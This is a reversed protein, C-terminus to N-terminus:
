EESMEVIELKIDNHVLILSTTEQYGLDTEYTIKLDVKIADSDTTNLYDHSIHELNIVEVNTVTPLKNENKVGSSENVVENYIGNKALKIFDGQFDTYVFQVGGIDNKSTKNDLNLFDALFLQSVLSAYKDEDVEDSELTTKLKKFLEKYYKTENDDMKYGYKKIEDEVKVVKKTPKGNDLFLSTVVFIIAIIAILVLLFKFIKKKSLKRKKVLKGRKQKNYKGVLNEKEKAKAILDYVIINNSIDIMKGAYESNKMVYDDSVPIDTNLLKSEEKQSNYYMTDTLWNGDPFVVINSEVNFIDHGLQYPSSIGIMNGLTPLADYMGMVKTIEEQYEDDKSWIIFPVKRNLEYQYYDVEVYTPDDKDKISDTEPIYNYYKEYEKKKIKADHDGYIVLITDDLLGEKDLDDIFQGLAEDAYNVSKFYSGLTTGELYPASETEREGTVDNIKEYKYDVEYDSYNEIDTFPTHNTLMIMTGYFHKNEENIKKIKPIAQKFFSKDSLGLGITEDIKFDETYCYFKDYGLKKHVAKRNWFDCNNGHMSFTYYDKSKLLKPITTYERDWYSVFVTGSSAPLLSTNFTFETDSSTGVSEQAYFNSFYLGEKSLRKLNPAVAKGNFEVDLVFNQISEAHIVIVNKDKFINTYENVEKKDDRTDYYERFEKAANDYGFLPSIQPKLSAIVDNIQYIYIGFKMVIYERNWQKALRSFDVGTLTLGFVILVISGVIWTNIARVKGREKKGAREYYNRKKLSMNVFWMTVIAWIYSIDKIEMINEIVEADM